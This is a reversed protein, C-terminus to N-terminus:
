AYTPHHHRRMAGILWVAAVLAGVGMVTAKAPAARAMDTVLEGAHPRALALKRRTMRAGIECLRQRDLTREAAPLLQTEEDAVHHMVTNMLEDLARRQEEPQGDLTGDQLPQMLERMRQHEPESKVLVPSDVGAERLAPYFLEEEVQAHVSLATCITRTAAKCVSPSADPTIKHYQALVMAHDKRIMATASPSMPHSLHNM